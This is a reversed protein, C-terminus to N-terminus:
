ETAERRIPCSFRRSCRASPNGIVVIALVIFIVRLRQIVGATGVESLHSSEM